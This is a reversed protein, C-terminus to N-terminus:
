TAVLVNESSVDDMYNNFDVNLRSFEKEFKDMDGRLIQQNRLIKKAVAEDKFIEKALLQEHQHIDNKLMAVVTDNNLFYNQFDEAQGLLHKDTRLHIMEALRNKLHWNEEKIFELTRLWREIEYELQKTKM